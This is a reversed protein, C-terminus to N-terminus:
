SEFSLTEAAAIRVRWSCAVRCWFKEPTEDQWNADTRAMEQAVREESAAKGAKPNGRRLIPSNGPTQSKQILM